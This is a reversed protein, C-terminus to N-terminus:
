KVDPHFICKELGLQDAKYSQMCRKMLVCLILYFCIFNISLKLKKQKELTRLKKPTYM